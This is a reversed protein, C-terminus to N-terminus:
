GRVTGQVWWAVCMSMSCSFLLKDVFMKSKFRPNLSKRYLLIMNKEYNNFCLMCLVTVHRVISSLGCPKNKLETRSSSLSWTICIQIM